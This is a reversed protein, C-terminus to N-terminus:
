ITRNGEDLYAKGVGELHYYVRIKENVIVDKSSIYNKKQLAYLIPYLTGERITLMGQSIDNLKKVIEYGYCDNRRLICLVLM